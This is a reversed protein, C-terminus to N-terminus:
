ASTPLHRAIPLAFRDYQDFLQDNVPVGDEDRRLLGWKFKHQYVQSRTEAGFLVANIVRRTTVTYWGGTNIHVLTPMILAVLTDRYLVEIHGNQRTNVAYLASKFKKNGRVADAINTMAQNM